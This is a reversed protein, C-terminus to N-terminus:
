GCKRTDTLDISNHEGSTFSRTSALLNHSPWPRSSTLLVFPLKVRVKQSWLM